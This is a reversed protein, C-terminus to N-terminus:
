QCVEMFLQKVFKYSVEKHKKQFGEIAEEITKQTDNLCDECLGYIENEGFPNIPTGCCECTKPETVTGGCESCVEEILIEWPRGDLESHHVVHEREEVEVLAQCEECWKM